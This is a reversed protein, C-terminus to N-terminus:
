SKAEMPRRTVRRSRRDLEAEVDEFSVGASLSKTLAFYLLDATEEVVEATSKAEALETAEEVLKSGLLESDDILKVTNSREPRQEAISALKRELRGVGTDDGWCTRSGLHCFGPEAQRVRFRLADRDCDLDVSLLDQTAGSTEGKLWLGRKRSQYVGRRMQFAAELSEADSWALGLATGREDTVVTPWPQETSALMATVVDALDFRGTYLGMGVQADAGIEDLAAIEEASQVGGAITVRADGAAEVLQESQALDVGTLRGEREVSTVLFGGCLGSLEAMREFVASGSEKRWGHTVVEGARNDLAAIVREAPLKALLEPSAATGVIVKKAGADLWETATAEDRVGGGVRVPGRQCLERILRTNEGEGRARDLDIVAVEGVISFRDLLEFPDDAKLALDEGGILQVVEGGMIDISPIIM